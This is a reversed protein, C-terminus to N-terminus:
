AVYNPDIVTTSTKAKVHEAYELWLTKAYHKGFVVEHSCSNKAKKCVVAPPRKPSAEPLSSSKSKQQGQHRRSKKPPKPAGLGAQLGRAQDLRNDVLPQVGGENDGLDHLPQLPQVGDQDGLGAQLGHAQDLLTDVLPQIGGDQDGQDHNPRKRKRTTTRMPPVNEVCFLLQPSLSYEGVVDSLTLPSQVPPPPSRTMCHGVKKPRGRKRKAGLPVSRVEPTVQMYGQRYAMGVTHKGLKGQFQYTSKCLRCETFIEGEYM